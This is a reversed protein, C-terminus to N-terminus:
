GKCAGTSTDIIAKSTEVKGFRGAYAALMMDDTNPHLGRIYVNRNQPIPNSLSQDLTRMNERPTFVAPVARPIAPHQMILADLDINIPITKYTTVTKQDSPHASLQQPSPTSGFPSRDVAAIHTGQDRQSLSNYFPTSPASENTSYSGRRNELGPVDKHLSDSRDYYHGARASPYGPMLPYGSVYGPYAPQPYYSMTTPYANYPTDPLQSQPLSQTQPAYMGVYQGDQTLYYQLPPALPIQATGAGAAMNAGQLALNNFQNMMAAM